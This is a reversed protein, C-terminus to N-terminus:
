AWRVERPMSLTGLSDVRRRLKVLSLEIAEANSVGSPTGVRAFFTVEKESTGGGARASSAARGEAQSVVRVATTFYPAPQSVNSTACACGSDAPLVSWLRDLSNERHVERRNRGGSAGEEEEEEADSRAAAGHRQAPMRRVRAPTESGERPLERHPNSSGGRSARRRAALLKNKNAAAAASDSGRATEGVFSSWTLPESDEVDDASVGGTSGRRKHASTLPPTSESGGSVVGDAASASAYRKFKRRVGAWRPPLSSASFSPLSLSEATTTTGRDRAADSLLPAHERVSDEFDAPVGTSARRTSKSGVGAGSEPIIIDAAVSEDSTSRTRDRPVARRTGFGESRARPAIVTPRQRRQKDCLSKKLDDLGRTGGGGSGGPSPATVMPRQRRHKESLNEKLAVLENVLQDATPRRTHETHWASALLSRLDAPWSKRLPPREGGTIVRQEFLSEVNALFPRRCLSRRPFLSPRSTSSKWGLTGYTEQRRRSTDM